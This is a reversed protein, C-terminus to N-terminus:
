PQPVPEAPPPALDGPPIFGRKALSALAWVLGTKVDKQLAPQRLDRCLDPQEVVFGRDALFQFDSRAWAPVGKPLRAPKAAPKPPSAPQAAAPNAEIARVLRALIVALELRTVPKDPEFQGHPYGKLVGRQSLERVAPHEAEAAGVIGSGLVLGLLSACLLWGWRIPLSM